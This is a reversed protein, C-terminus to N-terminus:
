FPRVEKGRANHGFRFGVENGNAVFNLSLVGSSQRSGKFLKRSRRCESFKACTGM